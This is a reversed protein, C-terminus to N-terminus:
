CNYVIVTILLLLQFNQLFCLILSTFDFAISNLQNISWNYLIHCASFFVNGTAKKNILAVAETDFNSCQNRKWIVLIFDTTNVVEVSLDHISSNHSEGLDHVGCKSGGNSLVKDQYYLFGYIVVYFSCRNHLLIFKLLLKFKSKLQHWASAKHHM